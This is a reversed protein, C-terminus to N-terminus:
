WRGRVMNRARHTRRLSGPSGFNDGRRAGPSGPRLRPLFASAGWSGAPQCRGRLERSRAAPPLRALSSDGRYGPRRLGAVIISLVSITHAQVFFSTLFPLSGWSIAFVSDRHLAGRFWKALPYGIACVTQVIVLLLLVPGGCWLVGLVGISVAGALSAFGGFWLAGDPWHRVYRSGMGPLQDLLHAGIGLGLFYALLTGGLIPWSFDPALAAGVIVFGMVMSTYPLHLMTWLEGTVTDRGAYWVPRVGDKSGTPEM